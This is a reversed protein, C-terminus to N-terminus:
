VKEKEVKLFFFFYVCLDLLIVSNKRHSCFHFFNLSCLVCVCVRERVRM